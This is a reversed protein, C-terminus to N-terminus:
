KLAYFCSINLGANWLYSDIPADFITLLGYRFTPEARLNIKKSIKYDAGLSISPSLNIIKYKYPQDQTKRSNDGNEYKGVITTTAKLFINTTLGMSALFRLRKKGVSYVARLPLDLYIHNFLFKIKSPTPSGNSTTYTFGYRPDIFDGYTLVLEKNAYGKNSYQIGAEFGFHRNINYTVNIGLTYGFKPEEQDNRLGTIIAASGESSSNLVRYCYDPSINVGILLRSFDNSANTMKSEQGRTAFSVIMMAMVTWRKM